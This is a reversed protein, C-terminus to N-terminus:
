GCIQDFRCMIGHRESMLFFAARYELNEPANAAGRWKVFKVLWGSGFGDVSKIRVNDHSRELLANMEAINTPDVYSNRARVHSCEM